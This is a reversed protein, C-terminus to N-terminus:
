VKEGLGFREIMHQKEDNRYAKLRDPLDSKLFEDLHMVLDMRQICMGVLYEGTENVYLRLGYFGEECRGERDVSCNNCIHNFRASRIQKFAIISDDPLDYRVSVKSSGSTLETYKPKAGLGSLIEYIAAYSESGDDLSNLLRLSVGNFQELINRVRSEQGFGTVVVNAKTRIGSALAEDISSHLSDIKRQALYANNFRDGQVQSFEEASSGFVSFVVSELGADAYEAFSRPNEGNSTMKVKLGESSAVKILHALEPHLSPEGGTLHIEELGVSEKLSSMAHRYLEDPKMRGPLFTVGNSHSYISVRGLTRSNRDRVNRLESVVPTGENHCFVCAMGCADLIKARLSRDENVVIPSKIEQEWLEKAAQSLNEPNIKWSEISLDSRIAPSNGFLRDEPPSIERSPM